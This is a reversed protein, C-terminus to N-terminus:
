ALSTGFKAFLGKGGEITGFADAKAAQNRAKHEQKQQEQTAKTAQEALARAEKEDAEQQLLMAQYQVQRTGWAKEEEDAQRQHAAKETLLTHNEERLAHRQATSFGRFRDPIIRRTEPNVCDNVENLLPDARQRALLAQEEARQREAAQAKAQAHQRSLAANDAQVQHTVRAQCAVLEAEQQEALAVVQRFQATEQTRQRAEAAERAAREQRQTEVWAKMDAHQQKTRTARGEDEGAFKQLASRGCQEPPMDTFDLAVKNKDKHADAQQRWEDQIARELAQRTAAEAAEQQARLRVVEATHAAEMAVLAKEREKLQRKEQVQVDLATVDVAKTRKANQLRGIREADRAARAALGAADKELAKEQLAELSRLM